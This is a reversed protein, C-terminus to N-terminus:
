KPLTALLQNAAAKCADLTGNGVQISWPPSLVALAVSNDGAPKFVCAATGIGELLEVPYPAKCVLTNFDEVSSAREFRGFAGGVGGTRQCLAVSANVTPTGAGVPGGAVVEGIATTFYDCPAGLPGSGAGGGTTSGADDGSGPGTDTSSCALSASLVFLGGLGLLFTRDM